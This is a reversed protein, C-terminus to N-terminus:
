DEDDEEGLRVVNTVEPVYHLIVNKIMFRMTVTSSSCTVCAGSLSITLVGSEADYSEFHVDGGDAQVNPAVVDVLLQRIQADVEAAPRSALEESPGAGEHVGRVGGNTAVARRFWRV